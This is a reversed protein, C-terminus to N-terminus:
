HEIKQGIEKGLVLTIDAIDSPSSRTVPINFFNTLRKASVANNNLTEIESKKSGVTDVSIVNYGINKLMVAVRSGLGDIETANIIQISFKEDYIANERFLDSIYTGQAFSENNKFSNITEFTKDNHSIFKSYFLIKLIDATNVSDFTYNYNQFILSAADEMSLFKEPISSFDISKRAVVLGDLPIGLSLSDYIKSKNVFFRRGSPITLISLKKLNRDLHILHADRDIILINFSDYRFSSQIMLVLVKYSISFFAAVLFVLLFIKIYKLNASSDHM